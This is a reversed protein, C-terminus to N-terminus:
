ADAKVTLVPCPAIRMIKEAISGMFMHVIGKRGHTGMVVLDFGREKVLAELEVEVAGQLVLHSVKPAGASTATAAADAVLMEFEMLMAGLQTPTYVVFGEPLAYKFPDFFYVFCLEAQHAKSLGTAVSAAKQACPSGDTLVLIKTPFTL